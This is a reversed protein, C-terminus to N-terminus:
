LELPQGRLYSRGAEILHTHAEKKCRVSADARLTINESIELDVELVLLNPGFVSVGCRYLDRGGM